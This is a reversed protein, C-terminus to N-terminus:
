GTSLIEDAKSVRDIESSHRNSWIIPHHRVVQSRDHNWGLMEPLDDFSSEDLHRPLGDHAFFESGALIETGHESSM